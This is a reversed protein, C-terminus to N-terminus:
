EVFGLVSLEDLLSRLGSAIVLPLLGHAIPRGFPGSRAFEHDVHIPHFDGSLGAFSVIDAETVTRASSTFTGGPKLDELYLLEDVRAEESSKTTRPMRASIAGRHSFLSYSGGFPSYAAPQSRSGTTLCKPRGRDAPPKRLRWM